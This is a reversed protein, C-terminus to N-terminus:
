SSIKYNPFHKSEEVYLKTPSSTRTRASGLGIKGRGVDGGSDNLNDLPPAAMPATSPSSAVQRPPPDDNPEGKEKEKAPKFWMIISRECPEIGDM